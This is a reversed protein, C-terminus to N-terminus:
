VPLAAPSMPAAPQPTAPVLLTFTTPNANTLQLRGGESEAIRRALALGMGHTAVDGHPRRHLSADGGHRSIGRSDVGSEISSEIRSDAGSNGASDEPRTRLRFLETADDVLAAGEDIVDVAIANPPADRIAITVAGQGHQAANDLLVALIQGAGAGSLYGIPAPQAVDIHLPRDPGHATSRWRQELNKVLVPIDM